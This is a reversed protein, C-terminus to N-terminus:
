DKKKLVIDVSQVQYSDYRCVNQTLCAKQGWQYLKQMLYLIQLFVKKVPKEYHLM